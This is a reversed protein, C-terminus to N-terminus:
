SRYNAAGLEKELEDYRGRYYEKIEDSVQKTHELEEVLEKLLESQKTTVDCLLDIVALLNM